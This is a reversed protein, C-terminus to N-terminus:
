GEEVVVEKREKVKAAVAPKEEKVEEVRKVDGSAADWELVLKRPRNFSWVGESVYHSSHYVELGKLPAISADFNTLRHQHKLFAEECGSVNGHPDLMVEIKLSQLFKMQACLHVIWKRHMRLERIVSCPHRKDGHLSPSECCTALFVELQRAYSLPKPLKVDEGHFTGRDTVVLCTHQAARELYEAQFQHNVLLLSLITSRRARLRVGHQSAYKTKFVLSQDYIDDRLERPLDFFRFVQQQPRKPTQEPGPPKKRKSTPQLEREEASAVRREQAKAAM